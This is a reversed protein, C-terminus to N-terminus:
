ERDATFVSHEELEKLASAKYLKEMRWAKGQAQCVFLAGFVIVSQNKPTLNVLLMAFIFLDPFLQSSM